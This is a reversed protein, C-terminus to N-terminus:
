YGAEILYREYQQDDARLLEVLTPLPEPLKGRYFQTWREYLALVAAQQNQQIRMRLGERLLGMYAYRIGRFDHAKLTEEMFDLTRELYLGNPRVGYEWDVESPNGVLTGQQVVMEMLSVYIMRRCPLREQDTAYKLGMWGWYLSQAMPLRWDVVGFQAEIERMITVDMRFHELLGAALPSGVDPCRGAEALFPAIMRVWETRYYARDSDGDMGLKHQFIWGLERYLAAERPNIPIGEDRLLSIGNQIWRWRDERRSMMVSINYALNWAHFSWVEPMHPELRTIWGSLQVLEVYRRSEQLQSARLWLCDAIMGRFGGLTVSIFTVAPPVEVSYGQHAQTFSAHRVERLRHTQIGCLLFGCIVGLGIGLRWKVACRM